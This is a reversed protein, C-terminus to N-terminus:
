EEVMFLIIDKIDVCLSGNGYAGGETKSIVGYGKARLTVRKENIFDTLEFMISHPIDSSYCCFDQSWPIDNNEPFIFHKGIYLNKDLPDKPFNPLPMWHTAKGGNHWNGFNWYTDIKIAPSTWFNTNPDYGNERYEADQYIKVVLVNVGCPPEEEKFNKWEM